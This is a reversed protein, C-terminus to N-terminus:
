EAPPAPEAPRLTDEAEYPVFFTLDFIVTEGDAAITISKPNCGGPTNYPWVALWAAHLESSISCAALVTQPPVDPITIGVRVKLPKTQLIHPEKLVPEGLASLLHGCFQTLGLKLATPTM